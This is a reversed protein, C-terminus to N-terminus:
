NRETIEPGSSSWWPTGRAVTFRYGTAAGRNIECGDAKWDPGKVFKLHTIEGGGTPHAKPLYEIKFHRDGPVPEVEVYSTYVEIVESM